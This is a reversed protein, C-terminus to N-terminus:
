YDFNGMLNFGTNDSSNMQQKIKRHIMIQDNPSSDENMNNMLNLTDPSLDQANEQPAEQKQSNLFMLVYQNISNYDDKLNVLQILMKFSPDKSLLGQKIYAKDQANIKGERMMLGMVYTVKVDEDKFSSINKNIEEINALM